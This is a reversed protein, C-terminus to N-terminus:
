LLSSKRWLTNDIPSLAEIHKEWQTPFHSKINKAIERSLSRFESYISPCRTRQWIKRLRNRQHIKIKIESSLIKPANKFNPNSAEVFAESFNQNIESIALEINEYSTFDISPVTKNNLAFKFNNWNTSLKEPNKIISANLSIELIVPYHDSSLDNLVRISHNFPIHKFVALDIVTGSRGVHPQARTLSQPAVLKAGRLNNLSQGYRTSKTNHWNVHAANFDGSYIATGGQARFHFISVRDDKYLRYNAIQPDIGPELWTEHEQPIINQVVKSYDLNPAVKRAKSIDPRPAQPTPNKNNKPKPGNKKSSKNKANSTNPAAAGIQRM